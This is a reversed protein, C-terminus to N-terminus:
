LGTTAARLALKYMRGCGEMKAVFVAAYVAQGVAFTVFM